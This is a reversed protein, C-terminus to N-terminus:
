KNGIRKRDYNSGIQTICSMSKGVENKIDNNATDAQKLGRSLTSSKKDIEQLINKLAGIAERYVGIDGSELNKTYYDGLVV